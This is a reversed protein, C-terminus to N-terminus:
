YFKMMIMMTMQTKMTNSMITMVVLGMNSQSISSELTGTADDELYKDAIEHNEQEINM